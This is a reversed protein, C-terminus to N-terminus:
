RKFVTYSQESAGAWYERLSVAFSQEIMPLIHQSDPTLIIVYLKMVSNKKKWSHHKCHMHCYLCQKVCRHCTEGIIAPKRLWLYFRLRKEGLAEMFFRFNHKRLHLFRKELWIPTHNEETTNQRNWIWKVLIDYVDWMMTKVHIDGLTWSQM